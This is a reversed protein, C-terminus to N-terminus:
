RFDFGVGHVFSHIVDDHGEEGLSRRRRRRRREGAFLLDGVKREHCECLALMRGIM